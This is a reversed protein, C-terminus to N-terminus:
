FAAAILLVAASAGAMALATKLLGQKLMDNAIIGPILYGIIHVGDDLAPFGALTHEALIKLALGLILCLAYRRRGYLIFFGSLLKVMVMVVAAAAATLATDLPRQQISLALYGPVIIGGPSLATLETFVFSVIIGTVLYQETSM